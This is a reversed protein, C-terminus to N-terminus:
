WWDRLDFHITYYGSDWVVRFPFFFFFSILIYSTADLRLSYGYAVLYLTRTNPTYQSITHYTSEVFSHVVSSVYAVAVIAFDSRFFNPILGLWSCGWGEGGPLLFIDMCFSQYAITTDWLNMLIWSAVSRLSVYFGLLCSFLPWSSSWAGHVHLLSVYLHHFLSICFVWFCLFAHVYITFAYCIM